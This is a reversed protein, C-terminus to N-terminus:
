KEEMIRDFASLERKPAPFEGLNTVGNHSEAVVLRKDEIELVYLVTKPTLIRREIVKILSSANMQEIKSNLFRKLLRTAIILCVIIGVLIVMMRIFENYFQDSEQNITQPPFEIPPIQPPELPTAPTTQAQAFLCNCCLGFYLVCIKIFSSM